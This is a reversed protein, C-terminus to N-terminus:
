LRLAEHQLHVPATVLELHHEVPVVRALVDELQPHLVRDGIRVRRDGTRELEDAEALALPEARVHDRRDDRAVLEAIERASRATGLVDGAMKALAHSAVPYLM